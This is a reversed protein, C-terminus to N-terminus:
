AEHVSERTPQKERKFKSILSRIEKCEWHAKSLPKIKNYCGMCCPEILSSSGNDRWEKRSEGGFFSRWQIKKPTSVRGCKFCKRLKTYRAYWSRHMYPKGDNKLLPYEIMGYNNHSRFPEEYGAMWDFGGDVSLINGRDLQM